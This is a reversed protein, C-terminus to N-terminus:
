VVEQLVRLYQPSSECLLSPLCPDLIRGEEVIHEELELLPPAAQEVEEIWDLNQPQLAAETTPSRLPYDGSHDEPTPANVDALLQSMGYVSYQPSPAPADQQFIDQDGCGFLSQEEEAPHASEEQDLICVDLDQEMPEELDHLGLLGDGGLNYEYNDNLVLVDEQHFNAM